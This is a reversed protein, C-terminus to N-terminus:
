QTAESTPLMAAGLSDLRPIMPASKPAAITDRERAQHLAQKAAEQVSVSRDNLMEDLINHSQFSDSHGLARAAEARVFHDSDRALQNISAAVKSVAGMAIAVEIGRLRRARSASVLEANLHEIAQPDIKMVLTGSCRRVEPDLMEFASLYRQFNFESLSERAAERVMEHPSEMLEVLRAMVGPLGRDRLQRVANAQVEPDLDDVAALVLENADNGKFSALAASAARRSLPGGHHMVFNLVEFVHLRNIGSALILHVAGRLEDDSLTLLFQMDDRLWAFSEVKRWNSKQQLTLETSFKQFMRRLFVLDNRRSLVSLVAPPTHPEDLYQLILKIVGQRQSYTLLNTTAAHVLELHNRLVNKLLADDPRALLLFAEILEPRRHHEFRQVAKELASFIFQRVLIPDRRKRYDRPAALEHYLMECLSIVARASLAAQSNGKDEAANILTPILDYGHLYVVAECANQHLEADMSLIAARLSDELRSSKEAIVSMWLDSLTKWRRLIELHGTKSRRDLLARLCAIQRDHSSSRLGDVLVALAAENRTETLVQLTKGLGNAV